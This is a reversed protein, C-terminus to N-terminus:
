DDADSHKKIEEIFEHWKAGIKQFVKSFLKLSKDQHM